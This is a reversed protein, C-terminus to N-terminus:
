ILKCFIKNEDADFYSFEYTINNETKFENIFVINLVIKNKVVVNGLVTEDLNIKDTIQLNISVNNNFIKM